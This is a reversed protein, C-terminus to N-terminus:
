IWIVTKINKMHGTYFVFSFLIHSKHQGLLDLLLQVTLQIPWLYLFWLVMSKSSLHYEFLLVWFLIYYIIVYIIYVCVCVCVCACVWRWVMGPSKFTKPIYLIVSFRTFYVSSPLSWPILNFLFSYMSILM